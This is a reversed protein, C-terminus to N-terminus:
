EHHKSRVDGPLPPSHTLAREPELEEVLMEFPLDQHSYAGLARERVQRLLARFGSGASFDTRLVLTNIFFGILGETEVQNRGAIPTGVSIDDQGSYRSLLAQFGGVLTMFLTAREERSIQRLRSTCEPRLRWPRRAGHDTMLAPRPRDTPLELRPSAGALQERWFAMERDLVEDRLWARQWAAYDAYQVVLGPLPSPRGAAFAQALSTVERLLIGQSWGDSVIHHMNFLVIHDDAALRVLRVRVLPGRALDFARRSEQRALRAAEPEREADPLERLDVAPALLVGHPVTVQRPHGDVDAFRTRLIEHRRIVEGLAQEFLAVNLRGRLRVAEPLNYTASEPRLQDLFWLRQQAFSLPLGDGRPVPEIPPRERLHEARMAASVLQAQRAVTPAAFFDALSLEVRFEARLRSLLRTALLSHGGLKLFEDYIGVQEVGLLEAWSAAVIEEIPNRPAVQGTSPLTDEPAPLAKRDVKGNPTLPLADLLVFSSPVMFDPLTRALHDEVEANSPRHEADAPVLYAVLSTDGPRNERSVVCAEGIWPYRALTAEIEGLEIRFGRVKVQHDVRGLFELAGGPGWRVVDGTKYIRSGPEGAIPDAVFREATLGPRHLYGRGVGLGGIHLEGPVGLPIPRLREDFVYVRVNSIPRGIPVASDEAASEGFVWSTMQISTETPGYVNILRTSPLASRFRDVLEAGLPEGGCFVRELACRDLGPEELLARLLSPVVQLTTVARRALTTTLYATDGHSEPRAMVLRGGALLPAYFEWVSADFSFPTRQLVRGQEGLPFSEEMWSMHNGLGRHLIMAGKPRGTSGSTYIVYALNEETVAVSLRAQSCRAIAERDGDVSVIRRGTAALEGALADRTLVLAAGCDELMFSIRERPYSPDIPVYGGGAKLVALLGVVMEPSRELCIAVVTDPGVGLRRLHRGLRNARVDTERYSLALGEFEVAVREPVQEAVRAFREHVPLDRPYGVATANHHVLLRERERRGLIELDGIEDNPHEVASVILTGIQDLILEAHDEPLRAADYRLEITLCDGSLVCSLLVKYRDVGSSQGHLSWHLTGMECPPPAELFEFCFPLFPVDANTEVRQWSFCEQWEYGEELAQDVARLVETLTSQDRIPCSVPVFRTLLGLTQELEEDTRGDCAAGILLEPNGTLRWLLVSWCSFLIATISVEREAALERLRQLTAPRLRALRSRPVFDTREAADRELPLTWRDLGSLDYSLWHRIGEQAEDSDLLESLWDAVASYQIPEDERASGGFLRDAYGRAIEYVLLSLTSADARFAPLDIMLLHRSAELRVLAFWLERPDSPAEAPEHLMAELRRAQEPAELASLDEEASWVLCAENVVQVPMKLGPVTQLSTRLIEHREVVDEIAARLLGRDLDGEIAVAGRSRYSLERGERGLTWLREQQPSLRFGEVAKQQM